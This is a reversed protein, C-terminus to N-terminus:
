ARETQKRECRKRANQNRNGLGIKDGGGPNNVWLRRHIFLLKGIVRLVIKAFEYM